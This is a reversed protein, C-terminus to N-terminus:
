ETYFAYAVESLRGLEVIKLQERCGQICSNSRSYVEFGPDAGLKWLASKASRKSDHLSEIKISIRNRYECFASESMDEVVRIIAFKTM